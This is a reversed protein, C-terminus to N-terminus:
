SMGDETGWPLGAAEYAELYDSITAFKRTTGEVSVVVETDSSEPAQVLKPAADKWYPITAYMGGGDKVECVIAYLPGRPAGVPEDFNQCSTWYSGEIHAGRLSCTRRESDFNCCHGCHHVGGNPM